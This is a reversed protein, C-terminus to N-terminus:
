KMASNRMDASTKARTADCLIADPAGFCKESQKVAQLIYSAKIMPVIYVFDKDTVFLQACTNGRSSIKYKCTTFITDM